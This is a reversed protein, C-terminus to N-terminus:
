VRVKAANKFLTKKKAATMGLDPLASMQTVMPSNLEFVGVNRWAFLADGGTTEMHADIVDYMTKGPVASPTARLVSKAQFATVQSPVEPTLLAEMQTRLQQYLDHPM